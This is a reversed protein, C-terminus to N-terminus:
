LYVGFWLSGIRCWSSVNEVLVSGPAGVRYSQARTCGGCRRFVAFSHRVREPLTEGLRKEVGADPANFYAWTPECVVVIRADKEEENRVYALPCIKPLLHHDLVLCLGDIFGGITDQAKEFAEDEGDASSRFSFATILDRQTSEFFKAGPVHKDSLESLGKVMADTVPLMVYHKDSFRYEPPYRGLIFAVDWIM